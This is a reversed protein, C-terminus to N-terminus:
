FMKMPLMESYLSNFILAIIKKTIKKKERVEIPTISGHQIPNTLPGSKFITIDYDESIYEEKILSNIINLYREPKTLLTSINHHNTEIIRQLYQTFQLIIKETNEKKPYAKQDM